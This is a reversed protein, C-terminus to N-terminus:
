YSLSFSRNKRVPLQQVKSCAQIRKPNTNGHLFKLIKNDAVSYSLLSDLKIFM